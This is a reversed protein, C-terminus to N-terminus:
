SNDEFFDPSFLFNGYAKEIEQIAAEYVQMERRKLEISERSQSLEHFLKPLM